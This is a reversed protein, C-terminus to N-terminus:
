NSCNKQILFRSSDLNFYDTGETNGKKETSIIRRQHHNMIGLSLDM